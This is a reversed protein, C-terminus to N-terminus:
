CISSLFLVTDGAEDHDQGISLASTESFAPSALLCASLLLGRFMMNEQSPKKHPKDKVRVATKSPLNPSSRVSLAFARPLCRFPDL